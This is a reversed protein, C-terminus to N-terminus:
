PAPARARASARNLRGLAEHLLTVFLEQGVIGRQVVARAAPPLFLTLARRYASAVHLELRCLRALAAPLAAGSTERPSASRAARRRPLVGGLHDLVEGLELVRREHDAQFRVLDARLPAAGELALLGRYTKVALLDLRALRGLAHIVESVEM